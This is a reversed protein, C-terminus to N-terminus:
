YSLVQLLVKFSLGPVALQVYILVTISSLLTCAGHLCPIQMSAHGSLSPLKKAAIALLSRAVGRHGMCAHMCAHMCQMIEFQLTCLQIKLNLVRRQALYAHLPGSILMYTPVFDSRFRYRCLLYIKSIDNNSFEAYM